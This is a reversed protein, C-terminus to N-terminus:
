WDIPFRGNVYGFNALLVTNSSGFKLLYPPYMNFSCERKNNRDEHNANLSELSTNKSWSLIKRPALFPLMANESLHSYVFVFLDKMTTENDDRNIESRESACKM